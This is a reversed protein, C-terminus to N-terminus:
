TARFAAKKSTQSKNSNNDFERITNQDFNIKNPKKKKREKQLGKNTCAEVVASEAGLWGGSADEVLVRVM